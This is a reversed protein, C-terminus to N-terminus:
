NAASVWLSAGGIIVGQRPVDGNTPFFGTGLEFGGQQAATTYKALWGTSDLIMAAQQSTFIQGSGTGDELKGTSTYYGKDNPDTWISFIPKSPHRAVNTGTARGQRGIGNNALEQGQLAMWQEYFWGYLEASLWYPAANSQKIKECDAELEQWTAPPKNPDLG